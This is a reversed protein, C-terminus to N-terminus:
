RSLLLHYALLLTDLDPVAPGLEHTAAVLQMTASTVMLVEAANLWTM